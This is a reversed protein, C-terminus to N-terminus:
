ANFILWWDLIINLTTVVDTFRLIDFLIYPEICALKRKSNFFLLLGESNVKITINTYKINSFFPVIDVNQSTLMQFEDKTIYDDHVKRGHVYIEVLEDDKLHAEFERDIFKLM